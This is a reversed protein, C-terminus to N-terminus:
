IAEGELDRLLEIATETGDGPSSVITLTGSHADVVSQVISLGLGSGGNSRSRSADARYFRETARRVTEDSMGDGQDIVTFTVVRGTVALAVDVGGDAHVLANVVLNAFAQRLLDNDGGVWAPEDPTALVVVRGPHATRADACVERALLAVDVRSRELEPQRDLTALDLLNNILRTMRQGEEKTRWMADDLESPEDLGGSTYLEAYGRITSVPTRLEHSADAVFQRLRQEARTREDLSLEIQGLMANLARGLKGAETVTDTDAIRESLDGAAIAEASDTMRKIPAIGLRLVWWTVLGLIFSLAATSLVVLTIVGDMTRNVGNLPVATIFYTGTGSAAGRLRYDVDGSTPEVTIPEGDARDLAEFDVAPPALERQFTNSAFFTVLTGDDLLEGEFVDSLRDTAKADNSREDGRGDDGNHGDEDVVDAPAIAFDSGDNIRSADIRDDIQDFLEDRIEAVIFFAVAVQVVALLGIATLLRSRLDLRKM